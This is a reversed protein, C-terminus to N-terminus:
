MTLSGVGALQRRVICRYVYAGICMHPCVSIFLYIHICVCVCVCVNKKGLCPKETYGQNDQFKSQLGLQGAEPVGKTQKHSGVLVAGPLDSGKKQNRQMHIVYMCM